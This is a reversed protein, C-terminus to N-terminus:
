QNYGMSSICTDGRKGGINDKAVIDKEVLVHKPFVFQGFREYSCVSVIFFVIDDASNHPQIPGNEIRKWLTVFQGVKTPTIKAARFVIKKNNVKFTHAEYESSEEQKQIQTIELGCKDYVLEKTAILQKNSIM